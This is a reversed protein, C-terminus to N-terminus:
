WFSRRAPRPSARATACCRRSRCRRVPAISAASPTFSRMSGMRAGYPGQRRPRDSRVVAGQPQPIRLRGQSRDRGGDRAVHRGRRALLGAEFQARGNADTRKTSLIENSRSMLRVEIGNKAETTALSNVFVNIGDNGSYSAIGLDSVIFWQTALTDNDDSSIGASEATLIYVGPALDGVAQDVPFATTVDANLTQEVALEGSWVKM